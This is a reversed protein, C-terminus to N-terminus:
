IEALLSVRKEFAPSASAGDTRVEHVVRRVEDIGFRDEGEPTSQSRVRARHFAPVVKQGVLREASDAEQVASPRFLKGVGRDGGEAGRVRRDQRPGPRQELLWRRRFWRRRGDDRFGGGIAQAFGDRRHAQAVPGDPDVREHVRPHGDVGQASLDLNPGSRHKSGIRHRPQQDMLDPHVHSAGMPTGQLRKRQEATANGPVERGFLSQRHPVLM